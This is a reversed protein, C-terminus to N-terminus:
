QWNRATEPATVQMLQPYREQLIAWSDRAEQCRRPAHIQCLLALTERASDPRENLAEALAMRLLVPPYAYRLSVKRMWALEATEMGPRAETRYFKMLAALQNLTHEGNDRKEQRVPGIRALEFRLDRFEEEIKLYDAAVWLFLGGLLAAFTRLLWPSLRIHWRTTSSEEVIGMALGVPVLFYAYALPYELLGHM